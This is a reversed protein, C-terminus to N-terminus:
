VDQAGQNRGTFRALLTEDWFAKRAGLPHAALHTKPGFIMTQGKARDYQPWDRPQGDRIFDLLAGAMQDCLRQRLPTNEPTTPGILEEGAPTFPRAFFFPLDAAHMARVKDDVEMDFRYMWVRSQASAAEAWWTTPLTFGVDSVFHMGQVGPTEEPFFRAYAAVAEAQTQASLFGFREAMWAPEAQDLDPDWQLWLGAEYNTYGIMLDIGAMAGEAVAQMPVQPCIDGDLGPYFQGDLGFLEAEYDIQGTARCLEHAPANLLRDADKIGARTMVDLSIERVTEPAHRYRPGDGGMGAPGTVNSMVVARRIMGKLRGSALLWSVDMGGASEGGLTINDPDGGFAAINAKIWRLALLQDKLGNTYAGRYDPGLVPEVDMFGLLGLRYNLSVVVVDGRLALADGHYIPLRSGELHNAGGHIWVYVPRKQGDRNPAWVNLTLCDEDGVVDPAAAPDAGLDRLMDEAEPIATQVSAAGFRTAELPEAWPMVPEPPRFRLAGLPPQAYPIGLWALCGDKQVFGRVPGSQTHVLLDAATM